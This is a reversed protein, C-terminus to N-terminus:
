SWTFAIMTEDVIEYKPDPKFSRSLQRREVGLLTQAEGNGYAVPLYRDILADLEADDETSDEKGYDGAARRVGPTVEESRVVIMVSSEPGEMICMLVTVHTPASAKEDREYPLEFKVHKDSKVDPSSARRKPNVDIKLAAMNPKNM